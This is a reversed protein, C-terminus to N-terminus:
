SIESLAALLEEESEDGPWQGIIANVGSRPGQARHLEQPAFGPRLPRPLASWLSLDDETGPHLDEADVRLLSGSPRFQAWGSVVAIRGFHPVLADAGGDALVGRIAAGSELVLTFAQDSHRIADVVGAVRIRQPRPTERQLRRVVEMGEVTVTLAPAEPRGNRIEVREVGHRFV